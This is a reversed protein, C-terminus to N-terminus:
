CDIDSSEYTWQENGASDETRVCPIMLDGNLQAPDDTLGDSHEYSRANSQDIQRMEPKPGRIDLNNLQAATLVTGCSALVLTTVLYKIKIM